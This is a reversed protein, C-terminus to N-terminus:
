LVSIDKKNNNFICCFNCICICTCDCICSHGKSNLIPMAFEVKALHSNLISFKIKKGITGSACTTICGLQYEDAFQFQNFDKQACSNTWFACASRPNLLDHDHHHDHDDDAGHGEDDDEEELLVM